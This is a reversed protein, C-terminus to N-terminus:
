VHKILIVVKEQKLKDLTKYFKDRSPIDMWATPEDFVLVPADSYLQRALAIRQWQGMSLEEGHDFMRGLATEYGQPLKEVISDVGTMEAVQRIREDSVNEIDGFAINEKVTCYFRVYDQFIAGIGKRLQPLDMNRIDVGNIKVSGQQTDYLRLLLKLLTTKGFGNEGEILNIEGRRAKWSFHSLVDRQMDPYRFTVDEFAVEEVREPFDQADQPSVINPKLELFEFLNGVFLRSDYLGSVAGVFSNLYGQGRRFAEFLMVFSGVTIAGVVSKNLLLLIVSALAITEVIACVADMLAIRRSIRLLQEVLKKRMAVFRTRFYGALGFTRVEKAFDRHTLIASFYSTRRYDQTNGRRFQYITRAKVLRVVMSPVVAVVMVVIIWWSGAILMVSVGVISVVSGILNMFHNVIQIPRYNAEQQARHFTDHFQPNDYYAMDLSVSQRQLHDSIYDILKQMLVDSNVGSLISVLRHLLYIVCFTVIYITLSAFDAVNQQMVAVTVADVLLKLVYLNMLPLVSELVVYLVKLVFAKRDCGRVMMLAKWLTKLANM